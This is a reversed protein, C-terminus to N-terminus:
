GARVHDVQPNEADLHAFLRLDDGRRRQLLPSVSSRPRGLEDASVITVLPYDALWAVIQEVDTVRFSGQTHLTSNVAETLPLLGSTM